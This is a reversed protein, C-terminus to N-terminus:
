TSGLMPREITAATGAAGQQALQIAHRAVERESLRSSRAMKEVVHRYRDRTAFDMKGYAAAPDERLTQEVVSMTEVFKRWDMAGLFRLSGISNSISVQDAAQQQNESQVLQEITLGSESLRQEIWTLPLALAPSQGQLRRAFEAVFASAMPPSSRAMDAIVLILSKPDKEAIEMMQDAWYDARNRDIRHAAIRTAARRLNEILALRLMIPIAWLEGLTLGTITQYAAVFSSLSGPDVRGDGHSITELAIDYVRPLGASPGNLLRPLERSYGKPLHRKATRIQEEILYFNDLLWEGAPTIRRNAKVAEALLDRVGILVDENEALRSLLQDPAQEPSLQHLGALTKGHQEMQDASFLESRLPPEGGAYKEALDNEPFSARFHLLSGLNIKSSVKM